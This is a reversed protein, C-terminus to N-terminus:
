SATLGGFLRAPDSICSLFGSFETKEQFKLFTHAPLYPSGTKSEKEGFGAAIKRSEVAREPEAATPKKERKM